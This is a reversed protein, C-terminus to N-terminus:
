WLHVEFTLLDIVSVLIQQVSLQLGVVLLVREGLSLQFEHMEELLGLFIVNENVSLLKLIISESPVMEESEVHTQKIGEVLLQCLVESLVREVVDLRELSSDLNDIAVLNKIL